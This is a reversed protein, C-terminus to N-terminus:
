PNGMELGQPLCGGGHSAPVGRRPGVAGGRVGGCRLGQQQQEEPQRRRSGGQVLQQPSRLTFLSSPYPINTSLM